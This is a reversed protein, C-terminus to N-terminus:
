YLHYRFLVLRVDGSAGVKIGDRAFKEEAYKSIREDYTNLIHDPSQVLTITIKGVLAPYLRPM